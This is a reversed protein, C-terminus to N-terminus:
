QCCSSCTACDTSWQCESLCYQWKGTGCCRYTHGANWDCDSTPKLGCTGWQCSNDCVQQGCCSSITGAANTSCLCEKTAGPACGEGNCNGYDGWQCATSCTRTKSGCNGCAASDQDDPQCVGEDACVEPGWSGLEDCENQLTGCLGCQGLVKVEGPMCTTGGGFGGAGFGAAGAEGGLGAEGGMAGFGGAGEGGQGGMPPWANGGEGTSGDLRPPPPPDAREEGVGIACAPLSLTGVFMLSAATRRM